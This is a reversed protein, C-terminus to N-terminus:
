RAARQANADHWADREAFTRAVSAMNTTGWICLPVLAEALSVGLATLEYDVRPPNEDHDTRLVIGDSELEKLQQTLVKNSVGRLSRRLDGHRTAGELLLFYVVLPKWKGAIVHLTADLACHFDPLVSTM